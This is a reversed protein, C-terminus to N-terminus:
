PQSQGQEALWTRVARVVTETPILVATEDDARELLNAMTDADAPRGQAAM